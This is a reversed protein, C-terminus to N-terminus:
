ATIAVVVAALAVPLLMATGGIVFRPLRITRQVLWILGTVGVAPYALAEATPEAVGFAVTGIDYAVVYYFLAVQWATNDDTRGDTAPQVEDSM